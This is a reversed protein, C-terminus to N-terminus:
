SSSWWWARLCVAFNALAYDVLVSSEAEPASGGRLKSMFAKYSKGRLYPENMFAALLHYGNGKVLPNGGELLINVACLFSIALGFRSLVFLTDRTNYWVLMGVSFLFVRMLLPGAHLWIRERRTLQDTHRIRVTFRPFFGFRLGISLPGVSARFAQAIFAQTLVALINIVLLSTIAHGLLTTVENLTALDEFALPAYRIGLILASLGLFPLLYVVWKLPSVLPLLAALMPKIEFLKLARGASRPDLNEVENVGAALTAEEPM